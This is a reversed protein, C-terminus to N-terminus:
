ETLFDWFLARKSLVYVLSIGSFGETYFPCGLSASNIVPVRTIYIYSRVGQHYAHYDASQNNLVEFFASQIKWMSFAVLCNRCNQTALPKSCGVPPVVTTYFPNTTSKPMQQSSLTKIEKLTSICYMVNNGLNLWGQLRPIFRITDHANTNM